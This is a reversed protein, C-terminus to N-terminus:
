DVSRGLREALSIQGPPRLIFKDKREDFCDLYCSVRGGVEYRDGDDIYLADILGVRSLGLDVIIGWRFVAEVQGDIMEGILCQERASLQKNMM